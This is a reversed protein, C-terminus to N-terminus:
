EGSVYHEESNEYDMAAKVPDYSIVRTVRMLGEDQGLVHRTRIDMLVRKHRTKGSAPAMSKVEDVYYVETRVEFTLTRTRVSDPYPVGTDPNLILEDALEITVPTWGTDHLDDVDDCEPTKWPDLFDCPLPGRDLAGFAAPSSFASPSGPASGYTLALARPTTSEDFSRGDIYALAESAVGAAALELEDTVMNTQSRVTLRQQNFTLFSALILALLALLTQPM